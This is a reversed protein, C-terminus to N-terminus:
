LFERELDEIIRNLEVVRSLLERAVQADVQQGHTLPENLAVKIDRRLSLKGYAMQELLRRNRLGLEGFEDDNEFRLRRMSREIAWDQDNFDVLVERVDDESPARGDALAELIIRTGRPTFYVSRLIGVVLERQRQARKSLNPGLGRLTNALEIASAATSIAEIVNREL